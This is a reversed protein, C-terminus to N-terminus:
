TSDSHLLRTWYKQVVSREKLFVSKDVIEPLLRLSLQHLHKRYTLYIEKLENVVSLELIGVEACADLIRINDTNECIKPHDNANSLVLFQVIFEIDILGGIDKKINFDMESKTQNSDLMKNRMDRISSRVVELDRFQCLVKLRIRTFEDDLMVSKTVARARVLAQHEWLWADNILYHEYANISSIIPGSEGHPRLRLDTDFVKGGATVTSLIHIVKQVLRTFFIDNHIKKPANSENGRTECSDGVSNHLFVIDLDSGYGL